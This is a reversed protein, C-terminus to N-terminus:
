VNPYDICMSGSQNCGSQNLCVPCFVMLCLLCGPNPGSYCSGVCSVCCLLVSTWNVDCCYEYCLQFEGCDSSSQCEHYCTTLIRANSGNVSIFELKARDKNLVYVRAESKIKSNRYENYVLVSEDSLPFGVALMEGKKLKHLAAKAMTENITWGKAGIFSLANEVDKSKLARRVANVRELGELKTVEPQVIRAAAGKMGLSALFWAAAGMFGRRTLAFSKSCSGCGKKVERKGNVVYEALHMLSWAAFFAVAIMAPLRLMEVGVFVAVGYAILSGALGIVTLFICKKCTGFKSLM